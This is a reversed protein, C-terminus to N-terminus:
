RGYSAAMTQTGTKANKWVARAVTSSGADLGLVEQFSSRATGHGITNAASWATGSRQSVQVAGHYHDIWGVMALQGDPSMTVRTAYADVPVTPDTIRQPLSWGGAPTGLAVYVSARDVGITADFISVAAVANGADDVALDPSLYSSVANPAQIVSMPDTWTTATTQRVAELGYGMYIVTALGSADLAVQANTVYGVSSPM